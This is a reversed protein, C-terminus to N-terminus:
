ACSSRRAATRVWRGRPRPARELWPPFCLTLPLPPPAGRRQAACARQAFVGPPPARRRAQAAAAARGPHARAGRGRPHSGPALHLLPTLASYPARPTAPAGDYPGREPFGEFGDRVHLELSGADCLAQKGDRQLNSRSWEVLEPIHDIGVCVGGPSVMEAMAATLYGSGSGVDLARAGPQLKDSLEELARAHMHPASITIGWGIQQPSDVYADLPAKCFNRRDVREMCERVRSETIVRQNWLTDLLAAWTACRKLGHPDRM